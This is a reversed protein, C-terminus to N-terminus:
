ATVNRVDIKFNEGKNKCNLSHPNNQISNEFIQLYIQKTIKMMDFRTTSRFTQWTFHKAKAKFCLLYRTNPKFNTKQITNQRSAANENEM